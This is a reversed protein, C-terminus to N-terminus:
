GCPPPSITCHEFPQYRRSPGSRFVLVRLQLPLTRAGTSVLGHDAKTVCFNCCVLFLGNSSLLDATWFLRDPFCQLHCGARKFNFPVPRHLLFIPGHWAHTHCGVAASITPILDPLFPRSSCCAALFPLWLSWARALALADTPPRTM